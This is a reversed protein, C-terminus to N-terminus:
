RHHAPEPRPHHDKTAHPEREEGSAANIDLHYDIDKATPLNNVRSNFLESCQQFFRQISKNSIAKLRKCLFFGLDKSGQHIAQRILDFINKWEQITPQLIRYYM